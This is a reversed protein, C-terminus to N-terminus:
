VILKKEFTTLNRCGNKTVVVMDELRIGGLNKYYLGPEVTVVNGEQLELGKEGLTPLEHIDLGVGHGTSHIFGETIDKSKKLTDYGQMELADCVANHVEEGTIGTKIIKFATQQAKLVADYMEILEKKPSGRVVTRTLDAYYREHKLRPFIDIIIPENALLKGYGQWHPNASGVGCAVITGDADCFLDILFHEIRSRLYESTLINDKYYLVGNKIESKKIINVALEMAREGARQANKIKEIENQTKIARIKRVPDKVPVIDFGKERLSDAVFVSFDYGVAISQLKEKTLFQALAHNLEKNNKNEYERRSRVDQIRSERKARDVEMHPVILTEKCKLTTQTKGFIYICKGSILFKTLYYMDANHFSEGVHLFADLKKNENKLITYLKEMIEM